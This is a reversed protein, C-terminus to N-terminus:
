QELAHVIALTVNYCKLKERREFDPRGAICRYNAFDIGSAGNRKPLRAYMDAETTDGQFDLLLDYDPQDMQTWTLTCVGFGAEVPGGNMTQGVVVYRVPDSIPDGSKILDTIPTMAAVGDVYHGLKYREM